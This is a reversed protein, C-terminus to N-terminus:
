KGVDLIKRQQDLYIKSDILGSDHLKKLEKLRDEKSASESLKPMQTQSQASISAATGQQTPSTEAPADIRNTMGMMVQVHAPYEYAAGSNHDIIAGIGGGLIINGFMSGKTASVVSALGTDYGAKKCAIQMDDNSRTVMSSGPTTIFWKGKSNSLECVAGSLERGTKELTQVSMSQNTTGTVSACGQMVLVWLSVLVLNKLM